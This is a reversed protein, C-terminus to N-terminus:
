AGPIRANADPALDRPSISTIEAVQDSPRAQRDQAPSSVWVQDTTKPPDRPRDPLVRSAHQGDLTM